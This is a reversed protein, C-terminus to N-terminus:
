VCWTRLYQCFFYGFKAKWAFNRFNTVKKGIDRSRICIKWFPNKRQFRPSLGTTKLVMFGIFPVCKKKGWLPAQAFKSALILYTPSFFRIKEYKGRLIHVFLCWFFSTGIFFISFIYYCYWCSSEFHHDNLIFM